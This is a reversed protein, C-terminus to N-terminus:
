GNVADKLVKGAKFKPTKAASIKIAAGTQPNKGTREAREGVSFTGFGVLAVTKGSLSIGTPKYWNGKRIERDILMTERALAAVYSMAIDAVESGFMGPTNKVPINHKSAAEFDINDTGVGWKVIAKLKGQKGAKLVDNSVPDDGVIWGDYKPILEILENVSLTQVVNPTDAHINKSEFFHTFHKFMKLMPPATVLVNM